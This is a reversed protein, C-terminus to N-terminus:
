LFYNSFTFGRKKLTVLKSSPFNMEGMKKRMSSIIKDISWDSYHEVYNKGWLIQAVEDRSIVKDENKLFHVLLKFEQFTFIDTCPKLGYYIQNTKPDYSLKEQPIQNQIYHKLLEGFLEYTNNKNKILGTKLLFNAKSILSDPIRGIKVVNILIKKENPNLYNWIDNCVSKIQDYNILYKKTKETAILYESGAENLITLCYKLLQIHGGCLEVLLKKLKDSIQINLKQATNELVFDISEQDSLEHYYLVRNIAYKFNHFKDLTAEDLLNITSLFVYTVQAKNLALISEFNRYISPSLNLTFEFDNLLFILHWGQNILYKVYDKILFLPNLSNQKPLKIKKEKASRQLNELILQLYSENTTDIIEDPDIYIFITKNFDKGFIRKLIKEEHLLFKILIRKGTGSIFFCSICYRNKVPTFIDEALKVLRDKPQPYAMENSM